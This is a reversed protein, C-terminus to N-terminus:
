GSKVGFTEWRSAFCPCWVKRKINPLLNAKGRKFFPHQFEIASNKEATMMGNELAIVKRFGDTSACLFTLAQM